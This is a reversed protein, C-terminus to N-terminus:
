LYLDRPESNFYPLFVAFRAKSEKSQFKALPLGFGVRSVKKPLEKKYTDKLEDPIGPAFDFDVVSLERKGKDEVIRATCKEAKIFTQKGMTFIISYIPTLRFFTEVEDMPSVSIYEDYDNFIWFEKEPAMKSIQYVRGTDHVRYVTTLHRRELVDLRGRSLMRLEAIIAANPLVNVDDTFGNVFKNMLEEKNLRDWHNDAVSLTKSLHTINFVQDKVTHKVEQKFKALLRKACDAQFRSCVFPHKLVYEYPNKEFYACNFYRDKEIDDNNSKILQIFPDFDDCDFDTAFKYINGCQSIDPIHLIQGREMPLFYEYEGKIPYEYYVAYKQMIKQGKESEFFLRVIEGFPSKNDTKGSLSKSVEM